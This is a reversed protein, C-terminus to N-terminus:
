KQNNQDRTFMQMFESVRVEPCGRSTAWATSITVILHLLKTLNNTNFLLKM